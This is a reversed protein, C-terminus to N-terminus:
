DKLILQGQQTGEWSRTYGWGGQNSSLMLLLFTTSKIYAGSLLM